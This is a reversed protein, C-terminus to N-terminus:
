KEPGTIFIGTGNNTLFSGSVLDYMGAVNDSKRYCPVLDRVLVGNRKHRFRWIRSEACYNSENLNLNFLYITSSSSFSAYNVMKTGDIFVGSTNAKFYHQSNLFYSDAAKNTNSGYAINRKGTGDGSGLGFRANTDHEGMFWKYQTGSMLRYLLEVEDTSTVILNGTNIWQTGTSELYAVGQYEQPLSPDADVLFEGTGKNLYCVHSVKDFMFGIGNEDQAPIYDRVLENNDWVKFYHMTFATTSIISGNNNLGFLSLTAPSVFATGSTASIKKTGNIYLGTKDMAMINADAYMDTKAVEAHDLNTSFGCYLHSTSPNYYSGFMKQQYAQRGGFFWTGTSTSFSSDSIGSVKTEIKTNNNPFYGTNIFQTGTSRLYTASRIEKGVVFEGTGQNYFFRGSIKDYMAPRGNSDLVPILDITTVGDSYKYKYIRGKMFTGVSNNTNVAFLTIPTTTFSSAHSLADSVSQGSMLNAVNAHTGNYTFRYVSDTNWAMNNATAVTTQSNYDFRFYQPSGSALKFFTFTNSTTNNRGGFVACNEATGSAMSTFGFVVDVISQATSLMGTNIYQTGTAELYEVETYANMVEADMSTTKTVGRYTYSFTATQTGTNEWVSPSVEIDSHLVTQSSGNNFHATFVLGTLDPGSGVIQDNEWTGTVTLSEFMKVVDASKSDSVSVGSETYTFTVTQTGETNGWLEPSYSPTVFIQSGGRYHVIFTMEGMNDVVPQGCICLGTWDGIIELSEPIATSTNIFASFAGVTMEASAEIIGVGQSVKADFTTNEESSLRATIM